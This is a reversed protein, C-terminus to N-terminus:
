FPWKVTRAKEADREQEAQKLNSQCAALEKQTSDLQDRFKGLDRRLFANERRAGTLEDSPRDREQEAQKLNSQCAALETTLREVEAHALKLGSALGAITVEAHSPFPRTYFIGGPQFTLPMGSAERVERMWRDRQERALDMQAQTRQSEVVQLKKKLEEIQATQGKSEEIQESLYSITGKQREWQAHLTDKEAQLTARAEELEGIRATLVQNRTSLRAAQRGWFGPTSSADGQQAALTTQLEIILAEQSKTVRRERDFRSTLANFEDTRKKLLRQAEDLSQVAHEHRDTLKRLTINHEAAKVYDEYRVWEGNSSRHMHYTPAYERVGVHQRCDFRQVPYQIVPHPFIPLARARFEMTTHCGPCELTGVPDSASISQIWDPQSITLLFGKESCKPCVLQSM